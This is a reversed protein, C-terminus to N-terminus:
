REHLEDLTLSETAVELARRYQRDFDPREEPL